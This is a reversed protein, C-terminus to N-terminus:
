VPFMPYPITVFQALADGPKKKRYFLVPIDSKYIINETFNNQFIKALPKETTVNVAVLDANCSKCAQLIRDEANAAISVEQLAYDVKQRALKVKLFEITNSVSLLSNHIKDSGIGLLSIKSKNRKAIPLVPQLKSIVGETDRVPFLMHQFEHKTCHYPVSIVPVFTNTIIEYANSSIFGPRKKPYDVGLVILDASKEVAYETISRAVSGAAAYTEVQTCGAHELKKKVQDLLNESNTLLTNDHYYFKGIGASGTGLLSSKVVNILHINASHRKAIAIAAKLFNVNNKSFDVPIVINKIENTMM